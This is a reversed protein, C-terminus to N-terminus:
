WGVQEEEQTLMITAHDASDIFMSLNEAKPFFRLYAQGLSPAHHCTGLGWGAQPDGDIDRQWSPVKASM